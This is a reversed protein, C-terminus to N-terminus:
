LRAQSKTSLIAELITFDIEEDVDWSRELPMFHFGM